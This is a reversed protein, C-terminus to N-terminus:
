AIDHYGGAYLLDAFHTPICVLIITSFNTNFNSKREGFEFSLTSYRCYKTDLMYMLFISIDMFGNCSDGHAAEAFECAQADKVPMKKLKVPILFKLLAFQSMGNM